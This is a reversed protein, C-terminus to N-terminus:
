PHHATPRPTRPPQPYPRDALRLNGGDFANRSPLRGGHLAGPDRAVHGLAAVTLRSLDDARDREQLRNAFRGVMVDVQRHRAIEAAAGGIDTDARRDVVRRALQSPSIVARSSTRTPKKAQM